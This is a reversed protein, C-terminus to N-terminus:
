PNKLKNNDQDFGYPSVNTANNPNSEPKADNLNLKLDSMRNGNHKVTTEDIIPFYSDIEVGFEMNITEENAYDYEFSKNIGYDDPMKARNSIRFGNYDIHFIRTKYLVKLLQETIKMANIHSDCIVNCKFTLKTPVPNMNASYTELTGGTVEKVYNARIWRNTLGATDISFSELQCQIRPVQDYSGEVKQNPDCDDAAPRIFFDQLFRSDGTMSYRFPVPTNIVETNSITQQITIKDEMLALFGIIINRLYVDDYNYHQGIASM